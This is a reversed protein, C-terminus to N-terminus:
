FTCKVAEKEYGYNSRPKKFSWNITDVNAEIQKEIEDPLSPFFDINTFSEISDVSVVYSELPLSCKENPMLFGIGKTSLSDYELIVKFYYNPVSIQNTIGITKTINKLVPGCVVYLSGNREVMSRELSELHAWRIRNLDKHQPSMNSMFFTEDMAECSFQMNRSCLMHGADYNPDSSYDDYTASATLVFPDERFNNKREVVKYLMEPKLEYAVWKPQEHQESYSLTYYMHRIITDQNIAPLYNFDQSYLILSSLMFGIVLFLRNFKSVAYRQM